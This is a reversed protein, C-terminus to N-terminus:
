SSKFLADVKEQFSSCLVGDKKVRAGGHRRLHERAAAVPEVRLAHSLLLLVGESLPEFTNRIYIPIQGDIAPAM